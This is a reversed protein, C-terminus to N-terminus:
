GHPTMTQPDSRYLTSEHAPVRDRCEGGPPPPRRWFDEIRLPKSDAPVIASAWRTGSKAGHRVVRGSQRLWNLADITTKYGIAVATSIEIAKLHGPTADLYRLIRARHTDTSTLGNM